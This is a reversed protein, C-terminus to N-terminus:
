KITIILSKLKGVNKSYMGPQNRTITWSNLSLIHELKQWKFTENVCIGDFVMQKKSLSWQSNNIQSKDDTRSNNLLDLWYINTVMSLSSSISFWINIYFMFAFSYIPRGNTCMSHIHTLSHTLSHTLWINLQLNFPTWIQNIITVIFFTCMNICIIKSIQWLLYDLYSM